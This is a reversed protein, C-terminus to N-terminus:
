LATSHLVDRTVLIVDMFSLAPIIIKHKHIRCSHISDRAEVVPYTVIDNSISFDDKWM